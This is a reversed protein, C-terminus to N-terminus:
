VLEVLDGLRKVIECGAPPAGPEPDYLLGRLGVARAGLVDVDYRDGVFPVGAPALDLRSLAHEFIERAPKEVGYLHSDVVLDIFRLLGAQELYREVFGDSNSVVAIRLGRQKLAALTKGAGEIPQTWLAHASNHRDLVDWFAEEAEAAGAGLAALEAAVLARFTPPEGPAACNLGRIARRFARGVERAGCALGAAAAAELVAEDRPEILTHGADFLIAKM